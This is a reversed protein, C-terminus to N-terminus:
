FVATTSLSYSFENRVRREFTIFLKPGLSITGGYFYGWSEENQYIISSTSPGHEIHMRSNLYDVGGYPTLFWFQSALGFSVQWENM